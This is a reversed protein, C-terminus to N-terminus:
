SKQQKKKPMNKVGDKYRFRYGEKSENGSKLFNHVRGPSIGLQREIEKISEFKRVIGDRSIAEVPIKYRAANIRAMGEPSIPTHKGNKHGERMREIQEATFTRGTMAKSLNKRHDDSFKRGTLKESIKKNREESYVRGKGKDSLLKKTDDTHKYNGRARRTAVMQANQDASPSHGKNGTGGKSTNYGNVVSNFLAIFLEEREELLKRLAKIDTGCHTELVEYRFNDPGFKARASQIKAGGYSKTNPNNWKRRREKEDMTNGVYCKGYDPDGAVNNVYRYVVGTYTASIQKNNNKM